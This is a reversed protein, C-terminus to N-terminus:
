PASNGHILHSLDNGDLLRVFPTHAHGFAIVDAQVSGFAVLWLDGAAPPAPRNLTMRQVRGDDAIWVSWAKSDGEWVVLLWGPQELEVWYLEGPQATWLLERDAYRRNWDGADFPLPSM